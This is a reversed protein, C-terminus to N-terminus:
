DFMMIGKSKDLKFTKKGCKPCRNFGPGDMDAAKLRLPIFLHPCDPCKYLELTKGTASDWVKAVPDPKKTGRKWQLYVFKGSEVCFGTIQEFAKGGGILVTSSFGCHECKMPYGTGAVAVVAPLLVLALAMLSTLKTMDNEENNPSHAIAETLATIVEYKSRVDSPVATSPAMM